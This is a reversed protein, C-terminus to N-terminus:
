TSLIRSNESGILNKRMAWYLRYYIIKGILNKFFGVRCDWYFKKNYFDRDTWFELDVKSSIQSVMKLTNFTIIHGLAPRFKSLGHDLAKKFRKIEKENVPKDRSLANRYVFDTDAMGYSWIVQQMYGYMRKIPSGEVTSVVMAPKGVLEPRHYFKIIRDLFIKLLSSIHFMYVPTAFIIGDAARMQDMIEMIDDDNLPCKDKRVCSMCGKCVSINKDALHVYEMKYEDESLLGEIKKVLRFTTKKRPSGQIVLINKM